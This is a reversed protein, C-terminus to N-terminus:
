SQSSGRIWTRRRRGVFSLAAVCVLLAAAPEPVGSASAAAITLPGVFGFNALWAALDDGDVVGNLNADGRDFRGPGTGLSRQWVLFDAGDTRRDLNFDGYSTRVLDYILTNVDSLDVLGDVNLDMLWTAPGFNAYLTAADAGNTVGDQNVDGRRVLLSDYANLAGSLAGGAVLKDGLEFLDVNTVLGDGDIDAAANFKAGQSYLCDEFSGNGIGQVDVAQFLNNGNLDGFGAGVGTNAFMGAFRQVITRGTPEITVVTAVHNGTRVGFYGKVFADRDYDDADGQGQQVMQLIQTDSLAAPLDLFFHMNDATGDVSRVILDRNQLTGPSSAFPLFSFIGAEPPLRDVYITRRFDTFVAPGGDGGTAANRHRFARVTVYHCGEALQSADITQAYLGTGTGVNASGNWIYGPTRTTTFEEFGYGVSGPTVNDVGAIGNVNLGGDIRIM